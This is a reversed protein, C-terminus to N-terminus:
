NGFSNKCMELVITLYLRKLLYLIEVRIGGGGFVCFCMRPDRSPASWPVDKLLEEQNLPLTAKGSYASNKVRDCLAVRHIFSM